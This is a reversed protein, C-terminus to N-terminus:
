AGHGGDDGFLQFSEEKYLRKHTPIEQLDPKSSLECFWRVKLDNKCDVNRGKRSDWGTGDTNINQWKWGVAKLSSGSERQLTTTQVLSYGMCRASKAIAGLLISCANKTGDTAVRTIELIFKQDSLRAIPRGAIAAGLLKGTEDIVGLSFRHGVAPKHHRHFRQVIANAEKLDLPIIRLSV